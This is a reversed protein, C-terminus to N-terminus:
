NFIKLQQIMKKLNKPIQYNLQNELLTQIIIWSIKSDHINTKLLEAQKYEKCHLYYRLTKPLKPHDSILGQIQLFKSFFILAQKTKFEQSANIYYFLSWLNTDIDALNKWLFDCILDKITLSILDLQTHAFLTKQATQFNYYKSSKYLQINTINLENLHATKYSTIKRSFPAKFSFNGLKYGYANVIFHQDAYLSKKMIIVQDTEHRSM